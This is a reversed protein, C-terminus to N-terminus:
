NLMTMADPLMLFVIDHLTKNPRTWPSDVFCCTTLEDRLAVSESGKEPLQVRPGVELVGRLYLPSKEREEEIM